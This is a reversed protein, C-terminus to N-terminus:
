CLGHWQGGRIIGTRTSKDANLAQAPMHSALFAARREDVRDADDTLWLFHGAAPVAFLEAGPITAAAHDGHAFPVDGDCPSHMVLTPAGIRDLPCPPMRAFQALDNAQGQERLHYPVVTDVLHIFRQIQEPRRMIEDVCRMIAARGYTSEVGLYAELALRPWRRAVVSVLWLAGDLAAGPLFRRGLAGGLMAGQSRYPQTVASELVLAWVRGGHRLAFQLAAPGGGSMGLVAVAAINLTDLLAAFMDAQEGPTRGLALPTRLYGPRSPTLVCFGRRVLDAFLFGQDYGGPTGHALLVIPARRDGALAFEVPGRATQTVMSQAHLRAVTQAHWRNYRYVPWAGLVAACAGRLLANRM